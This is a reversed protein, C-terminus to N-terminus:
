NKIKMVPHEHSKVLLMNKLMLAITYLGCNDTTYGYIENSNFRKNKIEFHRGIELITKELIITSVFTLKPWTACLFHFKYGYPQTQLQGTNMHEELRPGPSITCGYYFAEDLLLLILVVLKDEPCMVMNLVKQFSDSEFNHM